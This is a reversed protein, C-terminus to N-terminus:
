LRGAKDLSKEINELFINQIEFFFDEDGVEHALREIVMQVGYMFADDGNTADYSGNYIPHKMLELVVQRIAENM